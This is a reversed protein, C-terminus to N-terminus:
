RGALSRMKSPVIRTSNHHSTIVREAPDEEREARLVRRLGVVELCIAGLLAPLILPPQVYAVWLTAGGYIVVAALLLGQRRLVIAALVLAAGAGLLAMGMTM